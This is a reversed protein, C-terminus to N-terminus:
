KKRKAFRKKYIKTMDSIYARQLIDIVRARVKKDDSNFAKLAGLRARDAMRDSLSHEQWYNYLKDDDIINGFVDSWYKADATKGRKFMGALNAHLSMEAGTYAQMGFDEIRQELADVDELRKVLRDINKQDDMSGAGNALIKDINAKIIKAEGDFGVRNAFLEGIDQKTNEWDYANDNGRRLSSIINTLRDSDTTLRQYESDLRELEKLHRSAIESNVAGGRQKDDDVLAKADALSRELVKIRATISSLRNGADQRARKNLDSFGGGSAPVDWVRGAVDTYRRGKGVEGRKLLKAGQSYLKNEEKRLGALQKQRDRLMSYKANRQAVVGGSQQMAFNDLRNQRALSAGQAVNARRNADSRLAMSRRMQEHQLYTSEENLRDQRLQRQISIEGWKKKLALSQEQMNVSRQRLEQQALMLEKSTRSANEAGKFMDMALEPSVGDGYMLNYGM